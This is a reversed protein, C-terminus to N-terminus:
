KLKKLPNGSYIGSQDLSKAMVSGAGIVTDAMINIGQHAITGSGVFCRDGVQVNGNLVVNTSIHCHDGVQVEHELVARTNIICNNGVESDANVFAGHMVITGEGIIAHKSVYASSAIITALKGGCSRISEYIKIRISPSKIQGITIIFEYGEKVLRPILEDNGIIPYGLVHEGLDKDLIGAISFETCSEIVEICSKCHGGGGVLILKKPM